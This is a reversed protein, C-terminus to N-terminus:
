LLNSLLDILPEIKDILSQAEAELDAISPLDPGQGNEKTYDIEDDIQDLARAILTLESQIKDIETNNSPNNMSFFIYYTPAIM